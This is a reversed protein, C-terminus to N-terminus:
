CGRTPYHPDSLPKVLIHCAKIKYLNGLRGVAPEKQSRSYNPYESKVRSIFIAVWLVRPLDDSGACLVGALTVQITDLTKM